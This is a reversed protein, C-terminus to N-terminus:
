RLKNDSLEVTAPISVGDLLVFGGGWLPLTRLAEPVQGAPLTPFPGVM